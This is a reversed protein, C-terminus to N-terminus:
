KLEIFFLYVINKKNHLIVKACSTFNNDHVPNGKSTKKVIIFPIALPSLFLFPISSESSLHVSFDSSRRLQPLVDAYSNAERYFHYRANKKLTKKVIIFSIALLSLFLFPM